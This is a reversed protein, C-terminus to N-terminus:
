LETQRDRERDLARDTQRKTQRDTQRDTQALRDTVTQRYSKHKVFLTVENTYTTRSMQGDAHMFIHMCTYTHM